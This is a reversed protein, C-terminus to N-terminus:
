NPISSAPGTCQWCRWGLLAMCSQLCRRCTFLSDQAACSMGAVGKTDSQTVRLCGDEATLTHTARRTFRLMCSDYGRTHVRVLCIAKTRLNKTQGLASHQALLHLVEQVEFNRPGQMHAVRRQAQVVIRKQDGEEVTLVSGHCSIHQM